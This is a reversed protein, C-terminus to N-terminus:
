DENTDGPLLIKIAMELNDSHNLASKAQKEDFGM